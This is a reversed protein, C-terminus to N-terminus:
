AAGPTAAPALARDLAMITGGGEFGAGPAHGLGPMRRPPALPRNKRKGDSGSPGVLHYPIPGYAPRRAVDQMPTEFPTRKEAALHQRDLLRLTGRRGNALRLEHPLTLIHKSFPLM